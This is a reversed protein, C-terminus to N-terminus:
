LRKVSYTARGEALHTEPQSPHYAWMEVFVIRTGSKKVKAEVIVEEAQGPSLFDARLDITAIKDLHLRLTTSAAAGGVADLATLLLGGHIRNERKEGVYEARFPIRMQAYGAELAMMQFGLYQNFPIHHEFITKILALNEEM